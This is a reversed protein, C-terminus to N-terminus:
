ASHAGCTPLSICSYIFLYGESIYIYIYMYICVCVCVCMDVNIYIQTYPSTVGLPSGGELGHGRNGARSVAVTHIGGTASKPKELVFHRSTALESGKTVRTAGIKRHPATFGVAFCLSLWLVPIYCPIDCIEPDRIRFGCDGPRSDFFGGIPHM